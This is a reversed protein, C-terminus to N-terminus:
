ASIWKYIRSTCKIKWKLHYMLVPIPKLPYSSHNKLVQQVMWLDFNKNEAKPKFRMLNMTFKRFHNPFVMFTYDFYELKNYFLDLEAETISTNYTSMDVVQIRQLNNLGLKRRKEESLPTADQQKRPLKERFERIINYYRCNREYLPKIGLTLINLIIETMQSPVVQPTRCEILAM